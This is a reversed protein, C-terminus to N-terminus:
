MKLVEYSCKTCKPRGLAGERWTKWGFNRLGICKDDRGHMSCAQGM